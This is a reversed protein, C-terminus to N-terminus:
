TLKHFHYCHDLSFDNQSVLIPVIVRCDVVYSPYALSPRLHDPKLLNAPLLM